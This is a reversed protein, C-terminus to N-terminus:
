LNKPPNYLLFGDVLMQKNLKNPIKKM